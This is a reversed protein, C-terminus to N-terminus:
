DTRMTRAPDVLTARRAPVLSAAFVVVLLAGLVGVVTPPDFPAVSYFLDRLGSALFLALPLGVLAGAAAVAAGERLALRLVGARSAGLAIRIGFERQRAETAYASVGYVGIASVALAVLAFIALLQMQMRRDAIAPTNRRLEEVTRLGVIPMTADIRQV